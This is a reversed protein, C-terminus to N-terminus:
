TNCPESLRRRSATEGGQRFVEAPTVHGLQAQEQGGGAGDEQQGDFVRCFVGAQLL